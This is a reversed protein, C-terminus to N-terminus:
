LPLPGAIVAVTAPWVGIPKAASHRGDRLRSFALQAEGLQEFSTRFCIMMLDAKHGLVQVLATSGADPVALASTADESMRRRDSESLARVRDWRVRYM